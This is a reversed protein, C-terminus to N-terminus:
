LAQAGLLLILCTVIVGGLVNSGTFKLFKGGLWGGTFGLPLGLIILVILSDISYEFSENIAYYRGIANYFYSVAILFIAVSVAWGILGDRVWQKMEVEENNSKGVCGTYLSRGGVM